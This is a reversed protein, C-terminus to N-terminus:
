KGGVKVRYSQRDVSVFVLALCLLLIGVLVERKMSNGEEKGRM